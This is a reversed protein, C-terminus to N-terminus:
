VDSFPPGLLQVVVWCLCWFVVLSVHRPVVACHLPWLATFGDCRLPEALTRVEARVICLPFLSERKQVNSGQSHARPQALALDEM